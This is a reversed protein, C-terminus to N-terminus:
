SCFGYDFIDLYQAKFVFANNRFTDQKSCNEISTIKYVFHLLASFDRLTKQRAM